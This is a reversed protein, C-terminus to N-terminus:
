RMDCIKELMMGSKECASGDTAFKVVFEIEANNVTHVCRLSNEYREENM